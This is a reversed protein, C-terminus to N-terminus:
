MFDDLDIITWDQTREPKRKLRMETRPSELDVVMKQHGSGVVKGDKVTRTIMFDFGVLNFEVTRVEGIELDDEGMDSYIPEYEDRTIDAGAAKVKNLIEEFRDDAASQRTEDIESFGRKERGSGM